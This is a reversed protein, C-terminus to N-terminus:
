EGFVPNHIHLAVAQFTPREGEPARNQNEFLAVSTWRIAELAIAPHVCGFIPLREDISGYKYLLNELDTLVDGFADMDGVHILELEKELALEVQEPSPVHRSIFLLKRM